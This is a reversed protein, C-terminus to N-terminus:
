YMHVAIVHVLAAVFLMVCLPMHFAHWMAFLREFGAFEAARRLAALYDDVAERDAGSADSALARVVRRRVGRARVRFRMLRSLAALAGTQPAIALAELAAVERALASDGAFVDGTAARRASAAARLERVDNRRGTMVEHIRPYILRGVIGSSAVLLMCALAVTSNLSGMRFNAHYLIAVPGLVGLVMHIRLWHRIGGLPALFRVRKRISYLLLLTMMALGVIGLAYGVGFEATLHLHDRGVRGVALGIAVLGFGVGAVGPGRLSRPEPIEVTRASM